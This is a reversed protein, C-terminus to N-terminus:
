LLSNTSAGEVAETLATRLARMMLCWFTPVETAESTMQPAPVAVAAPSPLPYSWLAKMVQPWSSGLTLLQDLHTLILLPWSSTLLPWPPWAWSPDLAPTISAKMKNPTTSNVPVEAVLLSAPTVPAEVSPPFQTLLGAVTAAQNGTIM